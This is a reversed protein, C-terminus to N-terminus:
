NQIVVWCSFFKQEGLWGGLWPRVDIHDENETNNWIQLWKTDWHLWSHSAVLLTLGWISGLIEWFGTFWKLLSCHVNECSCSGNIRWPMWSANKCNRDLSTVTWVLLLFLSITKAWLLLLKLSLNRYQLDKWIEQTRGTNISSYFASKRLWPVCVSEKLVPAESDSLLQGALGSGACLFTVYCSRMTPQLGFM